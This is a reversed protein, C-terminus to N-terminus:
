EPVGLAVLLRDPPPKDPPQVRDNSGGGHCDCGCSKKNTCLDHDGTECYWSMYIDGM